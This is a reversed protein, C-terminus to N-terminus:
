RSFARSFGLSLTWQSHSVTAGPGFPNVNPDTNSNTQKTEFAREVALNFTNGRWTYGLGAAAHQQTIAPFLPNLTANPVPDEGFNYGGRLTIAESARYEAGVAVAWVDKWDFLFPMVPATVPSNKDPHTGKVEIKQIAGSWRYRRADASLLWRNVPRVQAGLGYQEPWTFGEVVADYRVVGLGIASQNLSLTGHRYEGQTRTQYIAGLQLQPVASWLVGVRGSYNFAKARTSLDAGFFGIDDTPDSPTGRNDYFSTNPFFRFAVDSYGANASVGVSLDESLAYAVTPTATLFRVESHTGDRTGFATSYGEFTAGMGGQSILGIGWTWPSKMAGRVYSISPMDFVSSKGDIRNGFPDGAYELTPALMQLDIGLHQGQLQAIGAPNAQLGLARDAIALNTGARGAAESGYGTLYMGNTALAPRAVLATLAILLLGRFAASLPNM